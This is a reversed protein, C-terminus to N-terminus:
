PRVEKENIYVMTCRKDRKDLKKKPSNQVNVKLFTNGKSLEKSLRKFSPPLEGSLLAKNTDIQIM